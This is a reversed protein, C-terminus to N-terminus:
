QCCDNPYRKNERIFQRVKKLGTCLYHSFSRRTIGMIRAAEGDDRNYRYKEILARAEHTPLKDEIIEFIRQITECMTVTDEPDDYRISVMYMEAYRQERIRHCRRQIAADIVDNRIARRLYAEINEINSPVPSRVLSLFLNQFIDDIISKDNVKSRIAIRIMDSNEKFIKAVQKVNKTSQYAAEM